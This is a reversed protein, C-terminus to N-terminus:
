PVCPGGEDAAQRGRETIKVWISGAPLRPPVCHSEAEIGPTQGRTVGRM